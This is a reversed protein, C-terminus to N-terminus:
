LPNPTAKKTKFSGGGGLSSSYFVLKGSFNIGPGGRERRPVLKNKQGASGTGKPHLPLNRGETPLPTPITGREKREYEETKTKKEIGGEKIYVFYGAGKRSQRYERDLHRHL